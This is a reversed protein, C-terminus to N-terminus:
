GFPIVCSGKLLILLHLVQIQGDTNGFKRGEFISFVHVTIRPQNKMSVSTVWGISCFKRWAYKSSGTLKIHNGERREEEM